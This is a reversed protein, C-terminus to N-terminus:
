SNNESKDLQNILQKIPAPIGAKLWDSVSLWQDNSEAIMRPKSSTLLVPIMDLKYHSFVHRHASLESLPTQELENPLFNDLEELTDFAPPVWLGGWIGTSPRKSMLLEDGDFWFLFFQQKIPMQKKKKKEPLEHVRDSAYANCNGIFPCRSCQYKTRTCLTAGLDMIAQTYHDVRDVPTLQSALDWLESQKDAKSLDGEIAFLRSLVRRVNGDQIPTQQKRSIALIAGATSRGIGPLSMMDELNDPLDSDFQEHAIQAAKHLNRARSYYGLGSWHSLVDDQDAEALDQLTPFSNMFKLYYPIVTKVQTQQLMIESVWVRYPTKNEQWPLDHRGHEDFWSLLTQQFNLISKPTLPQKILSM